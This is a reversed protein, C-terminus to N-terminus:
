TLLLHFNAAWKSYYDGVVPRKKKLLLLLLIGCLSVIDYFAIEMSVALAYM